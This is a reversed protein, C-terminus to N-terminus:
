NPATLVIFNQTFETLEKYQFLHTYIAIHTHVLLMAVFGGVRFIYYYTKLFSNTNFFNTSVQNFPKIIKGDWQTM